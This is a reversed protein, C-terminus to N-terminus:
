GFFVSDVHTGVNRKAHKGEGAGDEGGRSRPSTASLRMDDVLGGDYSDDDPRVTLGNAAAARLGRSSGLRM